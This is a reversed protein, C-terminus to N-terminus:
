LHLSQNVFENRQRIRPRLSGHRGVLERFFYCRSKGLIALRDNETAAWVVGCGVEAHRFPKLADSTWAVNGFQFLPRVLVVEDSVLQSVRDDNQRRAGTM